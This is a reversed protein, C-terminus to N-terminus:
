SYPRRPEIAKSGPRALGTAAVSRERYAAGLNTSRAGPSESDGEMQRGSGSTNFKSKIAWRSLNV